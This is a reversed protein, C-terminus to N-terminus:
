LGGADMATDPLVKSFPPEPFAIANPLAPAVPALGQAALLQQVQARLWAVEREARSIRQHHHRSFDILRFVHGKLQIILRLLSAFVGSTSEVVWAQTAYQNPNSFIVVTGSAITEFFVVTKKGGRLVGQSPLPMFDDPHSGVAYLTGNDLVVGIERQTFGRPSTDLWSAEVWLQTADLPDAYVANVPLRAVQNVLATQTELPNVPAGGGDGLVIAAFRVPAGGPLKSAADAARGALTVIPQFTQSM